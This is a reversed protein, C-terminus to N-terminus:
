VYLFKFKSSLTNQLCGPFVIITETKKEREKKQNKNDNNNHFPYFTLRPVTSICNVETGEDRDGLVRIVRSFYKKTDEYENTTNEHEM